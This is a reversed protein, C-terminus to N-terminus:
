GSENSSPEVFEVIPQPQREAKQRDESPLKTRGSNATVLESAETDPPACATLTSSIRLRM